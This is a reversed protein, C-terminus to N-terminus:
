RKFFERNITTNIIKQGIFYFKYIFMGMEHLMVLIIINLIKIKTCYDILIRYNTKLGNTYTFIIINNGQKGYIIIVDKKKQCSCYEYKYVNGKYETEQIYGIYKTNDSYTLSNETYSTFTNPPTFANKKRLHISCYYYFYLDLIKFIDM